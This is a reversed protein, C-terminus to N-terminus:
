SDTADRRYVCRGRHWTSLVQIHELEDAPTTYPDRELIVFSAEKGPSLSGHRGENFAGHAADSTMMRLAEHISIRQEPNPHNVAAHIGLLPDPPTVNSDSGGAIRVGADLIDRFRNTRRWDEGLRSAYMGDPGGWYHEFSPQMSVVLGLDRVRRIQEDTALEFHEIRHRHDQRPAGALAAEYAAIVQEIARTGIAHFALQAGAGHAAAVLSRFSSPEEYLAGRHGPRGVYDRDLAATYSGISGDLCICGGLHRVGLAPNKEQLFLTLELPLSPALRRLAAVGSSGFYDGGELAHVATIGRRSCANVAERVAREELEPSSRADLRRKGATCAEARLLGGEAGTELYGRLDASIELRALAASNVVASHHDVRSIWLPRDGLVADLKVRDLREGEPLADEEYGHAMVWEDTDVPGAEIRAVVEDFSSCGILSVALADLGTQYFHIHADVFGPVVAAGGVDIREHAEPAPGDGLGTIRDGRVCMWSAATDDIGNRITGGTVVTTLSPAM